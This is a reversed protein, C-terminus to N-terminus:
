PTKITMTLNALTVFPTEVEGQYQPERFVEVSYSTNLPNSGYQKDYESEIYLIDNTNFAFNTGFTILQPQGQNKRIYINQNAGTLQDIVLFADGSYNIFNQINLVTDTPIECVEYDGGGGAEGVYGGSCQMMYNLSLQIVKENNSISLVAM